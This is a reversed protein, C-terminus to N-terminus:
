ADPGKVLLLLQGGQVLEAGIKDNADYAFHAQVDVLLAKSGAKFWSADAFLDTADIVGSTEKDAVFPAVPPASTTGVLDGFKAPDFKMIAAFAGTATDYTWIKANRRTNGPDECLYIVGWRDVAINDFMDGGETGDLLMELTATATGDTAIKTVDDFTVAWLRSRGIQTADQNDHVAGHAAFNNRDTTVFYFVNSNRPDWAGDEPRLFSTGKNPAALSVRKGEGKGVISKALGVNTNRNEAWFGPVLLSFIRGDALGAKEVPSGEAQKAGIYVYAQNTGGDSLAMVLTTDGTAPHALLNEWSPPPDAQDKPTGFSFAPLEYATGDATVFAFARNANDSGGEEGTLFLRGNYGNRSAANHFASIPALDASCLRNIDLLKGASADGAKWSRNSWLHLKEPAALFDRGDVVELTDKNIVWRSVYAGTGGHARVAGKGPAIEHTMLVTITRDGNDFAGLGDPIGGMRYGKVENGATLLATSTWGAATPVIYATGPVSPTTGIAPVSVSSPGINAPAAYPTASPAQARAGRLQSLSVSSVAIAALSAAGKLAGRRSIASATASGMTKIKFHM